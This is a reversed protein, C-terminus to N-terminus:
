IRGEAGADVIEVGEPAKINVTIDGNCKKWDVSIVGRPTIIDGKAWDFYGPVPKVSVAEFGPKAPRVGLTVAPLEFLTLSGWAHCDSRQGVPDEVCTTLNNLLMDRWPQWLKKTYEYLGTKEVARFLYYAMAVSCQALTKDELTREMLDKAAKGEIADALVAWVQCHQSYEDVDPGDQYLGNDGLCYQNVAKIVKDARLRYEQALERRGAYDVIEASAKLVHAYLLSEVTIPGKLTAKPSGLTENWEKTWDVFSWYKDGLPGGIKDVLGGVTLHSDFFGLISDITPIYKKIFSKDGFYMMHDYIMLIYYLSFGPIVNPGFAPYCCNTLGDPRLSCHFDDICKRALRDDGSVAYTYLIQSRTDMAYQLQEYFPCDEYTEHMCRKLTRLSIEWIKQMEPDSSEVKTKVELPYGTERYDFSILTLPEDGTVIELEIFRFTRFWFPEYYEPKEVTGFGGPCYSDTIGFLKGNEFDLRDGKTPMAFFSGEDKPPYAYCESTLINIKSEEGLAVMLQLFGTTLEGANIEVVEHSHAPITLSKEGELWNNWDEKKIISKRLVFTELFKRRIEYLEPIPRKTLAGLSISKNVRFSKYPEANQWEDDCYGSDNWGSLEMNGAAQEKIWLFNLGGEPLISIDTSKKAKWSSDTDLILENEGEPKCTGELYFGPIDTRWVSQNGETNNAPYRLVVASLVNEGLKLYPAIDIEDYYWVYRDGRCPGFSVSVGNVYLRYRSDASVKIIAKTANNKLEFGKRFYVIRTHSNDKEDWEQLWIWRSDRMWPNEM